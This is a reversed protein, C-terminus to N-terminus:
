APGGNADVLTIAGSCVMRGEVHASVEFQQLVGMGRVRHSRLEFRVPPRVADLVKVDIRALRGRTPREIGGFAVIGSLQALAETLLVGPVIPEDPFHGRFFDEDGTVMWAGVARVGAELEVVESVFLFPARHPLCLSAPPPTPSSNAAFDPRM